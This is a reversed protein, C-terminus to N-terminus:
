IRIGNAICLYVHELISFTLHTSILTLKIEHHVRLTLKTLCEFLQTLNLGYGKTMM